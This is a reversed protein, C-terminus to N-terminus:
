KKPKDWNLMWRMGFKDSFDGYISGWFEEKLPHGVKGGASLKNFLRKIEEESSCNIMLTITNGQVVGGTGMMDSAYLLMPGNTLAAHMIKDYTAPPMEKAAPTEGVKQLALEGGLCEKYFTMAESCNGNFNFALYANIQPV